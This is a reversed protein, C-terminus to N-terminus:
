TNYLIYGLHQQLCYCLPISSSLIRHSFSFAESNKIIFSYSLKQQINSNIIRKFYLVLGKQTNYLIYIWTSNYVIVCPSVLTCFTFHNLSFVQDGKIPTHHSSFLTQYELVGNVVSVFRVIKNNNNKKKQM